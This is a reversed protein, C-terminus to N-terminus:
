FLVLSCASCCFLIVDQFLFCVFCFCSCYGSVSILFLCESKFLGFFVLIAPFVTIKVLFLFILCLCCLVFVLLVFGVTVFCRLM